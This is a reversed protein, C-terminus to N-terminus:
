REEEPRWDPASGKKRRRRRSESGKYTGLPTLRRVPEVLDSQNAMVEDLDKYAGPMEDLVAEKNATFVKGGVALVAELERQLSLEQRARGRSRKRGAGHSCSRFSDPHGLGRGLYSGTGMSGPTITPQGRDAKVAGKRHVWVPRGFHDELTADNHHINVMEDWRLADAYRRDLVDGIRRLMHRRNLEAYDLAARMARAYCHGIRNWADEDHGVPLWALGPDPLSHGAQQCHALAMRHFNNCIMSGVGRSGSHLMVWVDDDPGALLEIFHNGAGLTGLQSRGRAVFRERELLEGRSADASQATSLPQGSLGAAEGMADYAAALLGDADDSVPAKHGADGSPISTQIWGMVDDRAIPGPAGSRTTLPSLFEERGITTPVLAMGCGIDNGVAYPAIAGDLAVVAGIPVGYGQHGDAMVAVRHFAPPLEACNRAQALAGEELDPAWSLIPLRAGDLLSARSSRTETGAAM